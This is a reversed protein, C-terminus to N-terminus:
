YCSKPTLRFIFLLIEEKLLRKLQDWCDDSNTKENSSILGSVKKALSL